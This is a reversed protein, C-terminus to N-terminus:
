PGCQSRCMAMVPSSFSQCTSTNLRLSDQASAFTVPKWNEDRVLLELSERVSVDDDVIFVIPIASSMPLARVQYSLTRAANM